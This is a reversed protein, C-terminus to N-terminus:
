DVLSLLKYSELLPKQWTDNIYSTKLSELTFDGWIETHFLPPNTIEMMCGKDCAPCSTRIKASMPFRDLVVFQDLECGCDPHYVVCVDTLERVKREAREQALKMQDDSWDKSFFVHKSEV